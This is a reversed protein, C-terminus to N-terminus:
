FVEENLDSGGSADLTKESQDTKETANTRKEFGAPGSFPGSVPCARSLNTNKSERENKKPGFPGSSFIEEHNLTNDQDPVFESDSWQDTKKPGISSSEPPSEDTQDTQDTQDPEAFLSARYISFVQTRKGNITKRVLTRGRSPEVEAIHGQEHLRKRLTQGSVVLPDGTQRGLEQAAAYSADPLLYVKEDTEDDWGVCVGSQSEQPLTSSEPQWQRLYAKGSALCDRLLNLFRTAPEASAQHETQSQAAEGLMNWAEKEMQEREFKNIAGCAEAFDLFYRWGLMMSAINEPTRRHMDSSTAEQRLEALDTQWTAKITDMQPSLWRIFGAMAQAYIGASADAQCTTLKSFDLEKPALEIILMRARLSMGHPMDEGTSLILGRPPKIPRLSTDARMRGRGTGNAQARFLREAKRHITQAQASDTPTFEDIVFLCDKAEFCLAELTNATDEWNAPLNKADMEAGFHQQLLVAYATKGQGTPGALHVGFDGVTLAARWVCGYLPITIRRPAVDLCQMSRRIAECLKEDTPPGPLIYRSLKEHIQVRDNYVPGVPGISGSAHLYIWHDNEQRWGLHAYTVQQEINSSLRQIAFRAHDKLSQGPYMLASAGLHQTVWTMGAYESASVSFAIERGNVKAEIMFERIQEVGDDIVVDAVIEAPFNTLPVEVAGDGTRKHWVIGDDTMEYPPKNEGRPPARLEDTVFALLDDISHNTALFDDVGQKAGGEAPPLYILSVKAHRSQLFARLRELAGYVSPNTMVDSDFVIYAQRENLAVSEFDALAVKGGADNSGRWNWVGILGIACRDHSAIADSKKIGETIFLPKTPDGIYPRIAPPVDLVMQTGRPTEYKCARGKIISPSDPRIQYAAVESHVNYIPIVLSPVRRQSDSFGLEKLQTKTTATWYGRDEIVADSIASEHRLMRLHRDHITNISHGDM